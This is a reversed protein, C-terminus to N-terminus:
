LYKRNRGIAWRGSEAEGIFSHFKREVDTCARSGHLIPKLRAGNLVMDLLCEVTSDLHTAAKKSEDDKSPQM